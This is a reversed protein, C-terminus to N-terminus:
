NERRCAARGDSDGATFGPRYGPTDWDGAIMTARTECETNYGSAYGDDYGRDYASDESECGSLFIAAFLLRWM